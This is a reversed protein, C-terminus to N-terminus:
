AALRHTAFVRPRVAGDNAALPLARRPATYDRAMIAVVGASAFLSLAALAHTLAIDVAVFTAAALALNFALHKLTTNMKQHNISVKAHATGILVSQYVDNM